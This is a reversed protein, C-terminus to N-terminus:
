DGTCRKRDGYEGFSARVSGWAGVPLTPTYYPRPADAEDTGNESSDGTWRSLDVTEPVLSEPARIRRHLSPTQSKTSTHYCANRPTFWTLPPSFTPFSPTDLRSKINHNLLLFPHPAVSFIRSTIRYRKSLISDYLPNSFSRSPTPLEIAKPSLPPLLVLLLPM